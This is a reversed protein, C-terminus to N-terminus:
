HNNVHGPKCCIAHTALSGYLRSGIPPMGASLVVSFGSFPIPLAVLVFPLVYKRTNDSTILRPHVIILGLRHPYGHLPFMERGWCVLLKLHCWRIFFNHQRHEPTALTYQEGFEPLMFVGNRSGWEARGQRFKMGGNVLLSSGEESCPHQQQM